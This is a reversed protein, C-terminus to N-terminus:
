PAQGSLAAASSPTLGLTPWRSPAGQAWRAAALEVALAARAQKVLTETETVGLEAAAVTVLLTDLAGIEGRRFRLQLREREDNLMERTRRAADAEDALAACPALRADVEALVAVQAAAVAAIAADRRAEAARVAARNKDLRLEPLGLGLTWRNTSQDWIFGPAVNLTPRSQAVALRVEADASAHDALALGIEYRGLLAERRLTEAASACPTTALVSGPVAPAESAPPVGIAQWLAALAEARASRRAAVAAESQREETTARSLAAAGLDGSAVRTRLAATLARRATLQQEGAQLLTDAAAVELMAQRVEGVIQWALLRARMEARSVEAAAVLRRAAAKGGFEIPVTPAFGVAWPAGQSQGYVLREVAGDLGAAPRRAALPVGRQAATVAALAAALDQRAHMAVLALQAPVGAAGAQAAVSDRWRPDDLRASAYAAPAAAPDLASPVYRACGVLLAAALPLASRVRISSGICPVSITATWM